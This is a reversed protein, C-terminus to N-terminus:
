GACFVLVVCGCNGVIIIIVVQLCNTVAVAHLFPDCLRGTSVDYHKMYINVVLKKHVHHGVLTCSMEMTTM